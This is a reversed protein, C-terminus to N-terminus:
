GHKVDPDQAGISQLDRPLKKLVQTATIILSAQWRDSTAPDVTAGLLSFEFPLTCTTTM